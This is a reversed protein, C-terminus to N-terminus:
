AVAWRFPVYVAPIHEPVKVGLPPPPTAESMGKGRHPGLYDLSGFAVLAASDVKWVGSLDRDLHDPDQGATILHQAPDTDHPDLGPFM